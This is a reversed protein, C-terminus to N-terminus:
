PRKAERKRRRSTARSTQTKGDDIFAFGFAGATCKKQKSNKAEAVRSELWDDVSTIFHVGQRHVYKRYEDAESLPLQFVKCSREFLLRGGRGAQVNKSVTETLRAIGEALHRLIEITAKPVRAHRETPVWKDRSTRKVLGSDVLTEIVRATQARPFHEEVLTNLSLDGKMGLERPHGNAKLYQTKTHWSRLVNVVQHIDFGVSADTTKHLERASEVAKDLFRRLEKETTGTMLKIHLMRIVAQGVHGDIEEEVTQRLPM